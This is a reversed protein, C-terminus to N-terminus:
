SVPNHVNIGKCGLFPEMETCDECIEDFIFRVGHHMQLRKSISEFRQYHKFLYVLVRLVHISPIFSELEYINRVENEIRFFWRVM